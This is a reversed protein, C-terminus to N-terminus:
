SDLKELFGRMKDISRYRHSMGNKINDDLQAFTQDYGEPIFIP